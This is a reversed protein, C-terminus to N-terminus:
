RQKHNIRYDYRKSNFGFPYNVLRMVKGDQLRVTQFQFEKFPVITGSEDKGTITGNPISVLFFPNTNPGHLHRYDYRKSNFSLSVRMLAHPVDKRYDYRKSNFSFAREIARREDEVQLRVTQFQFRSAGM